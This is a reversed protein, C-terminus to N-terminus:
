VPPQMKTPSNLNQSSCGRATENALRGVRSAPGQIARSANRLGAGQAAPREPQRCGPRSRGPRLGVAAGWEPLVAAAAREQERQRRAALPFPPRRLLNEHRDGRRPRRPGGMEKGQDYTLTKRLPEPIANLAGAFASAAVDAKRAPMRVLVVFRTTREVLTGTASASEAGVILDGEWHGPVLRGEVEEPREEISAMGVLKGRMESGKPERGLAPKAHRLLGILERRLGGRPM